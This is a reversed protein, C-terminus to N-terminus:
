PSPYYWTRRLPCEVNETDLEPPSRTRWLKRLLMAKQSLLQERETELAVLRAAQISRESEMIAMRQESSALKQRLVALDQKMSSNLQFLESQLESVQCGLAEKEQELVGRHAWTDQVLRELDGRKTQLQSNDVALTILQSTQPGRGSHCVLPPCVLSPSCCLGRHWCEKIPNVLQELKLTLTDLEVRM